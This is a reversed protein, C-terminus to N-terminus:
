KRKSIYYASVLTLSSLTLFLIVSIFEFQTLQLKRFKVNTKISGTYYSQNSMSWYFLKKGTTDQTLIDQTVGEKYTATFKDLIIQNLTPINLSIKDELEPLTKTYFYKKDSAYLKAEINRTTSVDWKYEPILEEFSRATFDTIFDSATSDMFIHDISRALKFDIIAIYNKNDSNKLFFTIASFSVLLILVLSTIYIKKFSKKNIM